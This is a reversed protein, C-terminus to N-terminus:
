GAADLHQLTWVSTEADFDFQKSEGPGVSALLVGDSERVAEFGSGAVEAADVAVTLHITQFDETPLLLLIGRPLPGKITRFNGDITLTLTHM